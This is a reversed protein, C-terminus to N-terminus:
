RVEFSLLIEALQRVPGKKKERKSKQTSETRSLCDDSMHGAYNIHRM